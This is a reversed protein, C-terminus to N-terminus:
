YSEVQQPLESLSAGTVAMFIVLAVVPLIVFVLMMALFCGRKPGTILGILNLLLGVPYLFIYFLLTVVAFLVSDNNVNVTVNQQPSVSPAYHIQQPQPQYQPQYAPQPAVPRAQVAQIPQSVGPAQPHAALPVEQLRNETVWEGCNKCKRASDSIESECFPCKM